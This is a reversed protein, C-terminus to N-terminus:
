TSINWLLVCEWSQLFLYIFRILFYLFPFHEAWMEKESKSSLKESFFAQSSLKGSSHEFIYVLANIDLNLLFFKYFSFQWVRCTWFWYWTSSFLVFSLLAIASETHVNLKQEMIQIISISSLEVHLPTKIFQLETITM